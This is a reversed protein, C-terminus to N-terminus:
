EFLYLSQLVQAIANEVLKENYNKIIDININLVNAIKELTEDKINAKKELDSVAQQTIQLEIAIANQKVHFIERLRKINQGHHVSPLFDSEDKKRGKM